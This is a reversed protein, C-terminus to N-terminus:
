AIISLAAYDGISDGLQSPVITCHQRSLALTEQSIVAQAHEAILKTSRQYISGIIIREPNLLDIIISLGKGLYRGVEAYVAIATADGSEAADAISKATINKYNNPDFYTPRIGSQWAATGMGIGLQAIGGGSCFGEMSGLKGYGAPGSDAVRVHGIEGAMDNKGCYLAGNLILGAGFGTGMTLFVVNDYGRGAGFKWEALACANADNQLKAEVKYKDALIDVIPINDWLPLNPPRMIIGKASSLPGGCSIGIGDIEVNSAYEEIISCIRGIIHLPKETIDTAFSRKHMIEVAGDVSSGIIVACKTGGIDIGVLTKM